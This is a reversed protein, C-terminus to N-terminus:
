QNKKKLFVANAIYKGLVDAVINRTIKSKRRLAEKDIQDVIECAYALSRDMHTILYQINQQSVEIQRDSFLKTIVASLLADDPARLTVQVATQLRSKLDPLAVEWEPM